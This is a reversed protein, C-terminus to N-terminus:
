YVCLNANQVSCIYGQDILQWWFEHHHFFMGDWSFQPFMGMGPVSVHIFKHLLSFLFGALDELHDQSYDETRFRSIALLM